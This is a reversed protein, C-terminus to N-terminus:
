KCCYCACHCAACADSGQCCSRVVNTCLATCCSLGTDEAEEGEGAVVSDVSSGLITTNLLNRVNVYLLEVDEIEDVCLGCSLNIAFLGKAISQVKHSADQILHMGCKKLSVSAMYIYSTLLLYLFIFSTLKASRVKM